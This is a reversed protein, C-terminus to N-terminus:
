GDELVRELRGHIDCKTRYGKLLVNGDPRVRKHIGDWLKGTQNKFLNILLSMNDRHDAQCIMAFDKITWQTENPNTQNWVMLMEEYEKRVKEHLDQHMQDIVGSMEDTFVRFEEPVQQLYVAPIKKEKCDWAEWFALPTLNSIIKHIRLYEDGKVKVKLGNSPFTVVFGENQSPLTKCYIALDDLSKFSHAMACKVNLSNAYENLVGPIAEEGDSKSVVGTLVLEEMNGYDVVIKNAPYIIEFLYTLGNDINAFDIHKRAWETAWMAQDSVFSGKTAVRFEDEYKFLIGMSGDWKDLVYFIEGNLADIRTFPMEGLNFFKKWPRAVLEGTKKNFIIGRANLTVDDWARDYTCENSYHFIVLDRWETHRVYKHSYFRSLAPITLNNDPITNMIEKIEKRESFSWLM